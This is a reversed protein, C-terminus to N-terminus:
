HAMEKKKPCDENSVSGDLGLFFICSLEDPLNFFVEGGIGDGSSIATRRLPKHVM